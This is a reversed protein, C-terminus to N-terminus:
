RDIAVPPLWKRALPQKWGGALAGHKRKVTDNAGQREKGEEEGEQRTESSTVNALIKEPHLNLGKGDAFKKRILHM